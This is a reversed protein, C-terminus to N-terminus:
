VLPIPGSRCHEPVSHQSHFRTRVKSSGGQVQGCLGQVLVDIFSPQMNGGKVPYFEPQVSLFFFQTSRLPRYSVVFYFTIERWPRHKRFVFSPWLSCHAPHKGQVSRVRTGDRTEQASSSRHTLFLGQSGSPPPWSFGSVLM